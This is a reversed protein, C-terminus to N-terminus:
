LRKMKNVWDRRILSCIAKNLLYNVVSIIDLSLHVFYYTNIEGVDFESCIHRRLGHSEDCATVYFGVVFCVM